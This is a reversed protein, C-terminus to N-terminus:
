HSCYGALKNCTCNCVFKKKFEKALTGWMIGREKCIGVYVFRLQSFASRYMQLRLNTPLHYRGDEGKTTLMSRLEETIRSILGPYARLTGVVIGKLEIQNLREFLQSYCLKWGKIPIMPDVRVMVPYGADVCKEAAELREESSAAGIEFREAVPEPNVSFGIVTRGNHELDLLSSVNNSKTLILLTHKRQKGFRIILRGMLRESGPAALSDCLEGTHLVTPEPKTLFKEIERWMKEQNGFIVQEGGNWGQIRFTGKLYCYECFYPCGNSWILEYFQGCLVGVPRHGPKWFPKIFRSKRDRVTVIGSRETGTM